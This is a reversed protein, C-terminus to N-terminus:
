PNLPNKLEQRALSLIIERAFSYIAEDSVSSLHKKDRHSLAVSKIVQRVDDTSVKKTRSHSANKHGVISDGAADFRTNTLAQAVLILEKM